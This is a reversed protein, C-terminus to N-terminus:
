TSIVANAAGKRARQASGMPQHHSCRGPRTREYVHVPTHSEGHRRRHNEYDRYDQRGDSGRVGIQLDACGFITFRKLGSGLFDSQREALFQEFFEHLNRDEIGSAVEIGRNFDLLCRRRSSVHDERPWWLRWGALIRDRIPDDRGITM